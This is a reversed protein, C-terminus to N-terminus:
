FISGALDTLSSGGAGASRANRRVSFAQSYNSATLTHTVKSILYNGSSRQNVGKVTVLRYPTLVGTYINTLINGTADFAYSSREAEAKVLQELDVTDEDWPHIIQIATNTEEQFAPEDGLLDLEAFSSTSKKITKDKLSLAFAQIRAPQQANNREHFEDVNRDSGLLILAPLTDPETPLKQFCGISEGPNEGPLVYAYMGQRKALSRLLQMKTGRQMVVPTQNNTPATTNEIETSAIQKIESFIQSAIEHDLLSEFRFIEDEQNLYISDDQVQLFIVSKGPESSMQRNFGVISGDILPIFETDGVKIEVRVRTFDATFVEDEGTWNGEEDTGIPIQIRAEWAMDIEQEVTIDEIQQLQETTAPNNNFFMRYTIDPM